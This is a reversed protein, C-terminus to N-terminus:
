LVSISKLLEDRYSIGLPVKHMDLFISGESISSIKEFNVLYSRHVRMFGQGSLKEEITKLNHSVMYNEEATVIKTYSDAAEAYIISTPEISILANNRKVFFKQKLMGSFAKKSLAIEVNIRLDNEGFPKVIYGSPLTQKARDLTPQDYYSTIYIFPIQFHRLIDMGLSIGDAAGKIKIDLLVLDPNTARILRLADAANDAIGKILYGNGSLINAIDHAIVPEDDVIVLSKSASM